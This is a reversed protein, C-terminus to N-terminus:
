LSLYLFCCLAVSCSICSLLLSCSFSLFLFCSMALSLFLYCSLSCSLALHLLLPIQIQISVDLNDGPDFVYELWLFERSVVKLLIPSVDARNIRLVLLLNLFSGSPRDLFSRRLHMVFIHLLKQLCIHLMEHHNTLLANLSM